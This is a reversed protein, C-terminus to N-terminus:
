FRGQAPRRKGKKTERACTEVQRGNFLHRCESQDDADDPSTAAATMLSQRIAEELAHDDDDDELKQEEKGICSLSAQIALEEAEEEEKMAAAMKFSEKCEECLIANITQGRQSEVEWIGWDPHQCRHVALYNEPTHPIETLLYAGAQQCFPCINGVQMRARAVCKAVTQRPQATEGCRADLEGESMMVADGSELDEESITPDTESPEVELSSTEASYTRFPADTLPM